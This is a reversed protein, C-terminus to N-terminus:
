QWFQYTPLGVAIGYINWISGVVFQGLMLGIFFPLAKHFGGRGGYRLILSKFLWALFLPCWVLNIEWSSTVAFALPHLPWWPFRVRLFQLLFAIGFGVTIAFFEPPKGVEPTKLWGDLKNYAEAGFTMNSKGEAGYSYMLHLVAWFGVFVAFSGLVLMARSWQRYSTRSQEALKFGELQQPMPHSRYARNFWFFVAFVTLTDASFARTGAVRTMIMEPGTFHLDHIPTGLEARMRTIALALAFYIVFFLIGILYPLGMAHAFILLCSLGVVIGLAASRYRMPERSDDLTSAKGFIRMFVQKLYSRSIFVSYLCFSLYAGFAQNETYPFRPDQDYALAVSTVSELKWFWYFFVCSFLFDLPMFMGLGIMFPYFSLPTWGISSWPKSTFYQGIDLFSKGFGPTLVTPISPYYYNLSNIQDILGAVAFGIWFLRNRFIGAPEFAQESTIQLPLQVIPYTLRESDTWQKRLLSNVCLMVFLLLSVFLTWYLTVPLWAKIYRVHWVSDSGIYYGKYISEDSVFLYKRLHPNILNAWNNATTAHKFPWTLMPVFVELMDHGSVCSGICLVTYILLLEGRQMAIRPAYNSVLKNILTLCLLIFVTNFLLSITTPHASYRIVEMQVVWYANVPLLILCLIVSKWTVARPARVIAPEPVHPVSPEAKIEPKRTAAPQAMAM